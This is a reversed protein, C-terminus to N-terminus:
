WVKNQPVCMKINPGIIFSSTPSFGLPDGHRLKIFTLSKNHANWCMDSARPIFNEITGVACPYARANNWCVDSGRLPVIEIDNVVAPLGLILLLAYISSPVTPTM